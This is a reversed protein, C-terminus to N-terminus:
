EDKQKTIVNTTSSLQECDYLLDIRNQEKAYTCRALLSAFRLEQSGNLGTTVTPPFEFHFDRSVNPPVVKWNSGSRVIDFDLSEQTLCNSVHYFVLQELALKTVLDL